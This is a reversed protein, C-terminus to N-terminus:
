LASGSTPPEDGRKSCPCHTLAAEEYCSVWGTGSCHICRPNATLLMDVWASTERDRELWRGITLMVFGYAGVALTSAAVAFWFDPSSIHM